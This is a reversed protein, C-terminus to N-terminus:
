NLCYIHEYQWISFYGESIMADKICQRFNEIFLYTVMILDEMTPEADDSQQFQAAVFLEAEEEELPIVEEEEEAADVVEEVEEDSSVVEDEWDDVLEERCRVGGVIYEGDEKSWM